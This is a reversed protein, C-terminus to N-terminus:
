GTWSAGKWTTDARRRVSAPLGHISWAEILLTPRALEPEFRDITGSAPVKPGSGAFPLPADCRRSTRGLLRGRGARRLWRVAVARRQGSRPVRGKSRGDITTLGCM